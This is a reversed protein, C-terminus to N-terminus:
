VVGSGGADAAEKPMAIGEDPSQSSSLTYMDQEDNPASISESTEM